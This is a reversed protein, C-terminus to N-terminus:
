IAPRRGLCGRTVAPTFTHRLCSRRDVGLSGQDWYPFEWAENAWGGFIGITLLTPFGTWHHSLWTIWTEAFVSFSTSLTKLLSEDGGNGNQTHSATVLDLVTSEQWHRQEILRAM